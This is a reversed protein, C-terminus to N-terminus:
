RILGLGILTWGDSGLSAVAVSGVNTAKTPEQFLEGDPKHVNLPAQIVQVTAHWHGSEASAATVAPTQIRGGSVWRGDAWASEIAEVLGACFSCDPRSIAKLPGTNGTQYAYDLVAFWYRTFAEMGAETPTKAVDPLVPM